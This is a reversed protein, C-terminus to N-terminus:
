HPPIPSSGKRTRGQSHISMSQISTRVVGLFILESVVNRPEEAVVDLLM